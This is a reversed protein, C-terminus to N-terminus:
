WCYGSSATFTFVAPYEHAPRGLPLSQVLRLRMRRCVWSRESSSHKLSTIHVRPWRASARWLVALILKLGSQESWFRPLIKTRRHEEEFSPDILSTPRVQRRPALPLELHALSAALDDNFSRM